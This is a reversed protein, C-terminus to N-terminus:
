SRVPGFSMGIGTMYSPFSVTNSANRGMTVVLTDKSLAIDQSGPHFPRLIGWININRDVSKIEQVRHSLIYKTSEDHHMIELSHPPLEM